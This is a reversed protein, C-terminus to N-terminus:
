RLLELIRSAHNDSNGAFPRTTVIIRTQGYAEVSEIISDKQTHLVTTKLQTRFPQWWTDNTIVICFKPKIEDLESKILASAGAEQWLCEEDNPNQMAAPAIKYLNSWVIKKAWEWGYEDLGYYRCVLKYTVNWFFSRSTNYSISPYFDREAETNVFTSYSSKSWYVNVWDLPSHNKEKYRDNSYSIADRIFSRQDFPTSADFVPKWGKVAQGYILFEAPEHETAGFSPYFAAYEKNKECQAKFTNINHLFLQNYGSTLM